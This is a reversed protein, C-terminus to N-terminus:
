RPGSYLKGRCLSLHRKTNPAHQETNCRLCRTYGKRGVRAGAKLQERTPAKFPDDLLVTNSMVFGHIKARKPKLPKPREFFEHHIRIGNVSYLVLNENQKSRLRTLVPCNEIHYRGTREVLIMHLTLSFVSLSSLLHVQIPLLACPFTFCIKGNPGWISQMCLKCTLYGKEECCETLSKIFAKRGAKSTSTNHPDEDSDHMPSHQSMNFTPIDSFAEPTTYIVSQIPTSQDSNQSSSSPTNSDGQNFQHSIPNNLFTLSMKSIKTQKRPLSSSHNTAISCSSPAGDLCLPLPDNAGSVLSSNPNLIM